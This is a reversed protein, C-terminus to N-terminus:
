ARSVRVGGGTQSDSDFLLQVLEAETIIEIPQGGSRLQEAKQLKNSKTAGAALKTLDQYGTVLIDTEHTVGRTVRAGCDVAAQQAERRVIALAGTFAVSKGYLPHDEHLLTGLTPETPLPARQDRGHCGHWSDATVVGTVLHMQALLEELTPADSAELAALGILAALLADEDPDHHAREELGLHAAVFPLSFSTLTPWARRSIALTCVYTLEPWPLGCLDCADRVVGVDFSANHAVLPRTDVIALIEGLSVEWSPAGQCMEPTIGHLAVNFPSFEFVPPRILKFHHAVVRGGEVEALGVACPTGRSSATEFDIAVWSDTAPEPNM